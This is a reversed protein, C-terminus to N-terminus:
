GCNAVATLVRPFPRSEGRKHVDERDKEAQGRMAEAPSAANPDFRGLKQNKKWALV